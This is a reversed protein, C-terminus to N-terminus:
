WIHMNKAKHARRHRRSDGAVILGSHIFLSSFEKIDVRVDTRKGVDSASHPSFFKEIWLQEWLSHVLQPCYHM